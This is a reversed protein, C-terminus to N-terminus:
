FLKILLKNSFFKLNCISDSQRHTFAAQIRILIWILIKIQIRIQILSYPVSEFCQGRFWPQPDAIMKQPDAIM